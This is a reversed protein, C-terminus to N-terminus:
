SFLHGKTARSSLISPSLMAEAVFRELAGTINLGGGLVRKLSRHKSEIASQAFVSNLTPIFLKLELLWKTLEVQPLCGPSM